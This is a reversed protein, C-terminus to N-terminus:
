SITQELEIKLQQYWQEFNEDTNFPAIANELSDTALKAKVTERDTESKEQLSKELIARAEVGGEFAQNTYLINSNAMDVATLLSLNLSKSINQSSETISKQIVDKDLLNSAVPLYGSSISFRAGRDPSTFWKLFLQSAYEKAEDGSKIVVMGAGQQVSYPEGGQFIPPFFSNVEIPYSETDSVTVEDPFYAAGSTSCVMCILDGIKADDSRFRGNSMFYGSIYPVYYNDWLKRFADKDLNISPNGKDVQFVEVGMQRAGILIYNAMADRGFFAKGDNLEPTLSDTWEYYKKSVDVVNEMTALDDLSAGTAAAFKDWDTTNLLMVELSKAVPFIKLNGEADIRGEEIFEPKYVQLEDKNFYTDLDLVLGLQDIKYATDSYSAFINPLDASGVRKEASELVKDALEVVNGQNFAEVIVGKELGVTENFESVLNDFAIKQAGNYYHWIEISVPNKPNLPSKTCGSVVLMFACVVALIKLGKM